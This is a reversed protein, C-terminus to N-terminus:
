LTCGESGKEVMVGGNGSAQKEGWISSFMKLIWLEDFSGFCIGGTQEFIYQEQTLQM